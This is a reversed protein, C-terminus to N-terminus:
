PVKAYTVGIPDHTWALHVAGAGDIAVSQYDWLERGSNCNIGSLCIPGTHIPATTVKSTTITPTATWFNTIRVLYVDWTATAPV